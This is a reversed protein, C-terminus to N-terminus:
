EQNGAENNNNPIEQANGDLGTPKAAATKRTRKAAPKAEAPASNAKARTRGKRAVPKEEPETKLTSEVKTRAGRVRGQNESPSDDIAPMEETQIVPAKSKKSAVKAVVKEARTKSEEKKPSKDEEKATNTKKPKKRSAKKEEEKAQKIKESLKDAIQKSMKKIDKAIREADHGLTNVADLFKQALGSELEKKETKKVSKKASKGSESKKKM